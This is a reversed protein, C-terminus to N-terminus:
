AGRTVVEEGGTECFARWAYIALGLADLAHPRDKKPLGRIQDLLPSMGQGELVLWLGRDNQALGSPIRSAEPIWRMVSAPIKATMTKKWVQPPIPKAGLSVLYGLLAMPVKYGDAISRGKQYTWDEVYIENARELFPRARRAFERVAEVYDRPLVLTTVRLHGPALLAVGTRVGPDFALISRLGPGGGSM